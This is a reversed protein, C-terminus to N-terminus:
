TRSYKIFDTKVAIRDYLRRAAANGEQTMWYVSPRGAADADAYVTEILARAVGKGRAEPLTYLDQLYTVDEARWGHAHAITNVIGVAQGGIRAIWANMDRRDPDTYRRFTLDAIEPTVDAGYFALYARWLRDWEARDGPGLPAIDIDTTM